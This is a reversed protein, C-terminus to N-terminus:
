YWESSPHLMFNGDSVFFYQFQFQTCVQARDIIKNKTCMKKQKCSERFSSSRETNIKKETPVTLWISVRCMSSIFNEVLHCIYLNFSIISLVHDTNENPLQPACHKKKGSYHNLEILRAFKNMRFNLKIFKLSKKQM